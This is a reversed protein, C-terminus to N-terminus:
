QPYAEQPSEQRAKDVLYRQLQQRRDRISPHGRRIKYWVGKLRNRWVAGDCPEDESGDPGLAADIDGMDLAFKELVDFIGLGKRIDYGAQLCLDVARRDADSEKQSSFILNEMCRFLITLLYATSAGLAISLWRSLIDLHGLDHHAIEHAIVFAITSDDRCLELLRRSFYIHKGPATFATFQELWPVTVQFREVPSRGQQLKTAVREVSEAAWGSTEFVVSTELASYM